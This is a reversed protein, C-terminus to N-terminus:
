AKPRLVAEIARFARGDQLMAPSVRVIRWGQAAAANYKELDAEYGKGRVHRGRSWIGGEIELAIREAVWAFDFAWKRPLAFRYEAMPFPLGLARCILEVAPCYDLLRM